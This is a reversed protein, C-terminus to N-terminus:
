IIVVIVKTVSGILLFIIFNALLNLGFVKLLISISPRLLADGCACSNCQILAASSGVLLMCFSLVFFPLYIFLLNMVGVGGYVAVLLCIYKGFFYGLFMFPLVALFSAGKVCSAIAVVAYGCLLFLASYFFVKAAGFVMDKQLIKEFEGGVANICFVIGAVIGIFFLLSFCVVSKKHLNLFDKIVYIWRSKVARM